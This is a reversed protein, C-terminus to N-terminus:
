CGGRDNYLVDWRNGEDAYVNGFGSKYQPAGDGRLAFPPRRSGPLSTVPTRQEGVGGGGVVAARSKRHRRRTGHDSAKDTGGPM